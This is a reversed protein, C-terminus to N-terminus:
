GDIHPLFVQLFEACALKPDYTVGAPLYYAMDGLFKKSKMRRVLKLEVDAASFRSGEQAMYFRFAEGVRKPSVQSTAGPAQGTTWAHWIDYLDRGHERQLLARLKTGLMEDLDYSVVPVQVVTSGPGPVDISVTTLPYLNKQENLNVEVKLRAFAELPSTPGYVYTVRAIESKSLFNRVALTVTTRVVESPEGLIPRLATAIDQSIGRRSRKSVLLVLDIDESYRSAPALHGKHLVTGGRMALQAKLKPDTFIAEVARCLLYDQEVMLDDSWPARQRWPVIENLPIM